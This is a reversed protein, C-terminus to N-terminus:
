LEKAYEKLTAEFPQPDWGFADKFKTLDTTNDEQSMIVQDRNFPLLPPPTIHTLLKAKWVPIPMVWRPHGVIAQASIRHLQPWTIEDPGGLTYFEGITQPKELADVFARAVDNVYVPQLKGAGHRGLFGAGFYPMFLFPPAKKRAWKAETQMFEGRPGHILSPRFITWDLGSARVYEEAAYKTKHYNSVAGPRAGLASMHIFRRIGARKAAEVVRQTAEVHIRQFTTGASRRERIIGILHIVAQCGRLAEDLMSNNFVDGRLTRLLPSVAYGRLELQRFIEGGVFGSAGTLMIRGAM